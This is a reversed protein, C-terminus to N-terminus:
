LYPATNQVSNTTQNTALTISSTSTNYTRHKLNQVGPSCCLTSYDISFRDHYDMSCHKAFIWSPLFLLMFLYRLKTKLSVTGYKQLIGYTSSPQKTTKMVHKELHIHSDFTVGTNRASSSDKTYEGAV